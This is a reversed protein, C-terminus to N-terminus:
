RTYNAANPSFGEIEDAQKDRFVEFKITDETLMQVLVTGIVSSTEKVQPNHTFTMQDWVTGDSTLYESQVLEYKVLGSAPTVDAPDPTNGKAYFQQASQSSREGLSGYNGISLVFHSNDYLDPSFSLDSEWFNEQVQQANSFDKGEKFWTGRLRGPIDWDIKGSIPETTRPSRAVMLAKLDESMYELPDATYLKWPETTYHEPRAFGSLPKETDWVAFDLTQGGIRGIQQGATVPISVRASNRGNSAATFEQLIAPELSTVLDYYYLFTCSQSFILRYENTENEILYQNDGPNSTRHEIAVLTADGMAYVPYADRSSRMDAPSYYQHDIPTVHGGVMLGYPVIYAFDSEDMAPKTLLRSGTGSCTDQSLQRGAQEAPSENSFPRNSAPRDSDPHKRAGVFVIAVAVIILLGFVWVSRKLWIHQPRVPPAPTIPKTNM